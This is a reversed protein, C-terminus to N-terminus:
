ARMSFFVAWLSHLLLCWDRELSPVYVIREICDSKKQSKGLIQMESNPVRGQNPFFGVNIILIVVHYHLSTKKSHIKSLFSDPIRLGRRSM